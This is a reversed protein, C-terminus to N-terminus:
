GLFGVCEGTLLCNVRQWAAFSIREGRRIEDAADLAKDLLAEKQEETVHSAYADERRVAFAIQEYENAVHALAKKLVEGTVIRGDSLKLRNIKM